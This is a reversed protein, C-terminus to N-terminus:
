MIMRRKHYFHEYGAISLLRRFSGFHRKISTWSPYKGDTKKFDTTTPIKHHDIAFKRVASIIQLKKWGKAKPRINFGNEERFKNLNGYRRVILGRLPPDYKEIDRFGAEHGLKDSVIVYREVLQKKCGGVQNQIALCSKTWRNRNRVWTKKLLHGNNAFNKIRDLNELRNAINSRKTSYGKGCLPFAIPLNFKMRYDDATIKHSWHLHGGLFAMWKGCLHCQVRDTKKNRLLVGDYGFGGAIETLPPITKFITEINESLEIM